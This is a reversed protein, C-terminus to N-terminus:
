HLLRRLSRCAGNSAIGCDEASRHLRVLHLCSSLTPFDLNEVPAKCGRKQWVVILAGLGLNPANLRRDSGDSSSVVYVHGQLAVIICSSSTRVDTRSGEFVALKPKVARTDVLLLM